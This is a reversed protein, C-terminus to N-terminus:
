GVAKYGVNRVTKIVSGSAGLKHRLSKIHMDVTRSEGDYDFGWVHDLLKDRSLAIGENVMLFRLLEFEKYTLSVEKNDAWVSRQEENLVVLGVRLEASREAWASSRRLVAKVRSIVELVSFPKAIYDDAGLDLGKIRDMEGDKATVLIVPLKNYQNSQKLKTLLSLGDKGPLMIDLLILDPLSERLGAEFLSADGFGLVDFGASTLAYLLMDRISEDDEVIYINPV